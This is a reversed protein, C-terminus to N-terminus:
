KGVSRNTRWSEGLKSGQFSVGRSSSQLEEIRRPANRGLVRAVKGAGMGLALSGTNLGVDKGYDYDNPSAADIAQKLEPSAGDYYGAKKKGVENGMKELIPNGFGATFATALDQELQGNPVAVEDYLGRAVAKTSDWPHSIFEGAATGLSGIMSTPAEVLGAGVGQMFGTPRPQQPESVPTQDPSVGAIKMLEENSLDSLGAIRKLEEDSLQSLDTAPDTM